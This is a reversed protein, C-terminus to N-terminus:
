YRFFTIRTKIQSISKFMTMMFFSFCSWFSPIDFIWFFITKKTSIKWFLFPSTQFFIIPLIDGFVESLLSFICNATRVPYQSIKFWPLFYRRCFKQLFEEPPFARCQPHVFKDVWKPYCVFRDSQFSNLVTSDM